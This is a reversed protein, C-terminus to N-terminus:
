QPARAVVDALIRDYLDSFAGVEAYYPDADADIQAYMGLTAFGAINDAHSNVTYALDLAGSCAPLYPLHKTRWAFKAEAYHRFDEKVDIRLIIEALTSYPAMVMAIMIQLQRITCDPLPSPSEAAVTGDATAEPLQALHLQLAEVGRLAQDHYINQARPAGSVTIAAASVIDSGTQSLILAIKYAEACQPFRPLNEARWAIDITAYALLQQRTANIIVGEDFEGAAAFRPHSIGAAEALQAETCAPLNSDFLRRVRAPDRYEGPIIWAPLQEIRDLVQHLAPNAAPRVGSFALAHAAAFDDGIHVVRQAANYAEVCLPLDAYAAERFALQQDDYLLLDAVTDVTFAGRLINVFAQRKTGVIRQKQAESCTASIADDDDSAEWPGLGLHSAVYKAGLGLYYALESANWDEIGLLRDTDSDDPHFLYMANVIVSDGLMRSALTAMEIYPECIPPDNWLDSRLTLAVESFALLDASSEVSDLLPDIEDFRPFFAEMKEWQEPSCLPLDADQARAFNVAFLLTLGLIVSKHM